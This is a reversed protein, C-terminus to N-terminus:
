GAQPDVDVQGLNLWRAEGDFLAGAWRYFMGDPSGHPGDLRNIGKLQATIKIPQNESLEWYMPGNSTRVSRIRFKEMMAWM